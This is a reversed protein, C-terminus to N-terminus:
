RRRGRTFAEASVVIINKDYGFYLTIKFFDAVSYDLTIL